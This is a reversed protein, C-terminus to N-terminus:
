ASRTRNSSSFTRFHRAKARSFNSSQAAAYRFGFMGARQQGARFEAETTDIIWGFPIAAPAVSEHVYSSLAPRVETEAPFVRRAGSSGLAQIRFRILQDKTQGPIEASYRGESIMKMPISLEAKEFGAGALRYLLFVDGLGNEDGVRAEVITPQGPLPNEPSYKVNSIIPPLFASFSANVKGPTGSPKTRDASLPSAAWNAASEGSEDPSIRELSGSHGDAGTSWPPTDQFKVSDVVRGSADSLQIQEGSNRLHQTFVGAMPADYFAQFRERSRCLVLFGKGEIRAGPAFKFKIGKTFAWGSLDVPEDATDHLEVFELDEIENPAHYFIENIVVRASTSAPLLSLCVSGTVLTRVFLTMTSNM